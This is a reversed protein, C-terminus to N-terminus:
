IAPQTNLGREAESAAAIKGAVELTAPDIVPRPQGSMTRYSPNIFFCPSDPSFEM